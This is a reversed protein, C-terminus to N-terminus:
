KTAGPLKKKGITLGPSPFFRRNEGEALYLGPKKHSVAQEAQMALL